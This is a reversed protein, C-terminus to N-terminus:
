TKSDDPNKLLTYLLPGSLVIFRKQLAITPRAISIVTAAQPVDPLPLAFACHLEPELGDAETVGAGGAFGSGAM